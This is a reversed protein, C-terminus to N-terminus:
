SPLRGRCLIRPFAFYYPHDGAPDGLRELLRSRYESRFRGFGEEDLNVEFATFMSGAVWDVVHETRDMAMGYVRETVDLERLGASWMIEAYRAPTEVAAADSLRGLGLEGAMEDALLHTAHGYNDPVQFALQGGPALHAILRPVLEDHGPSWHLAANSFIVDWTGTLATLDGEEFTPGASSPAERAQALMAGSSDIGVTTSAGLHRHMQATLRGTGCGLDVARGGPVPELLAILDQGPRERADRFQEYIAPKWADVM